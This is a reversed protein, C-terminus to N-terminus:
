LLWGIEWITGEKPFLLPHFDNSGYRVYYTTVGDLRASTHFLGLLCLMSVAFVWLNIFWSLNKKSLKADLHWSRSNDSCYQHLTM